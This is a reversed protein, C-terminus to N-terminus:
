DCYVHKPEVIVVFWIMSVGVRGQLNESVARMGMRQRSSSTLQVAVAVVVHLVVVTFLNNVVRLKQHLKHPLVIVSNSRLGRRLFPLVSFFTRVM